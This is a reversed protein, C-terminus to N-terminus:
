PLVLIFTEIDRQARHLPLAVYPSASVATM